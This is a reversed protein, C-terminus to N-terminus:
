SFMPVLFLDFMCVPFFFDVNNPFCVMFLVSVGLLFSWCLEFFMLPVVSCLVMLDIARFMFPTYGGGFNMVLLIAGLSSLIFM